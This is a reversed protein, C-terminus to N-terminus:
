LSSTSRSLCKKFQREPHGYSLPSFVALLSWTNVRRAKVHLFHPSISLSSWCYHEFLISFAGGTKVLMSNLDSGCVPFYNCWGKSAMQIYKLGFACKSLKKTPTAETWACGLARWAMHSRWWFHGQPSPGPLVRWSLSAGEGQREERCNIHGRCVNPFPMAASHAWLFFILGHKNVLTRTILGRHMHASLFFAVDTTHRDGWIRVRNNTCRKHMNICSM